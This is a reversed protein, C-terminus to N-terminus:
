AAANQIDEDRQPEPTEQGLEKRALPNKTESTNMQLSVTSRDLFSLERAIETAWLKGSDSRRLKHLAERSERVRDVRKLLSALLLQAEGDTPSHILLTRLTTEAVVWDRSLYADRAQFFLSDSANDRSLFHIPLATPFASIASAAAVVWVAATASWLGLGINMEVLETWLWTTAIATNLTVSFAIAVILGGISGRLWLWPLGPWLITLYRLVHMIPNGSQFLTLNM